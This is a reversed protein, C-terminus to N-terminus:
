WLLFSNYCFASTLTCIEALTSTKVPYCWREQRNHIWTCLCVSPCVCRCVSRCIEYDGGIWKTGSASIIITNTLARYVCAGRTPDSRLELLFANYLM